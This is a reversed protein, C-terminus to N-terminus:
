LADILPSCDRNTGPRNGASNSTQAMQQDSGTSDERRGGCVEGGRGGEGWGGMAGREATERGGETEAVATEKSHESFQREREKVSISNRGVTESFPLQHKLNKKSQIPVPSFFINELPAFEAKFLM